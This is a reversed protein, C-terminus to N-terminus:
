RRKREKEQPEPKRPMERALKEERKAIAHEPSGAPLRRMAEQFHWLANDREQILVNHRGLALHGEGHHGAQGECIGLLYFYRPEDPYQATLQRLIRMAELPKQQEKLAFALRFQLDAQDPLGAIAAKLDQEAEAFRGMEIRTVGRHRLLHFDDPHQKVLTSFLAEAEPLKGAARLAEALGQELALNGPDLKLRARFRLISEEPSDHTEAELIARVRALLRNEESDPRRNPHVPEEAAMRRADLLRETTVPHTLLYPPPLTAIRQQQVLRNMFSALGDPNFGTRALLAVAIRDSQSEKRRISELMNTQASAAGGTIVAQSVRGDRSAMGALIGAATTILTQISLKQSLSELQLHHGAKLHGIEHAMVGALEDRDRVALLLGSNLVIHRNLLAFANLTPNLVVHFRVEKPPLDAAQALPEGIRRLLETTEPGLALVVMHREREEARLFSPACGLLVLLPLCLTRATRRLRPKITPM